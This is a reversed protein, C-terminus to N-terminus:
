QDRYVNAVPSDKLVAWWLPVSLYSETVITNEPQDEFDAGEWNEFDGVEMWFVIDCAETALAIGRAACSVNIFEVNIGLRKAIEAILATNFGLPEGGASVYDM